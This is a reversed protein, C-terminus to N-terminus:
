KEGRACINKAPKIYKGYGAEALIKNDRYVVNGRVITEKVKGRIKAGMFPTWKQMYFLNKEEVLWEKDPDFIVIDGDSGVKIIGKQPYIGYRKATETSSMKVFQGLSMNRKNVGEDFFLPFCTQISTVGAPTEFINDKGAEKEEFTYTAHDSGIFDVTGLLVRDWLKNVTDKKRIPPNCIAFVGWKEVHSENLYLFHPCTEVTINAGLAKFGNVIDIGEGISCHVIHVKADSEKAFFAMRSISELEAIEPRGKEYDTAATRGSKELDRSYEKTIGDNECHICLVADKQSLFNMYKLIDGDNLQPSAPSAPIFAKFAIAGNEIMKNAEEYNDKTCAGFLCFDVIAKKEGLEKKELFLELTNPLPFTLPHELVTTIGGAAASCTGTYFDESNTYGPENLHSHSDIFGPMVLKGLADINEKAEYIKAAESIAIIKGDKIYINGKFCSEANVILGNKICLDYM